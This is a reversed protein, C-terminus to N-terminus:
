LTDVRSALILRAAREAVAMVAANPQGCLLTPIVSADVVRLRDLGVVRCEADVREVSVEPLADLPPGFDFETYFEGSLKIRRPPGRQTAHNAEYSPAPELAASVENTRDGILVPLIKLPPRGYAGPHLYLELALRYELLLNDCESAERLRAM